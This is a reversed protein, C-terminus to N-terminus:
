LVPRAADRARPPLAHTPQRALSHQLAHARCLAAALRVAGFGHRL